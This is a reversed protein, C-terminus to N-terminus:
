KENSQDLAGYWDDSHLIASTAESTTALRHEMAKGLAEREKITSVKSEAEWADAINQNETLFRRIKKAIRSGSDSMMIQKCVFMFDSVKGSNSIIYNSCKDDESVLLSMKEKPLLPLFFEMLTPSKSIYKMAAVYNNENKLFLRAEQTDKSKMLSEIKETIPGTHLSGLLKSINSEIPLVDRVDGQERYIDLAYQLRRPSIADKEKTPLEHWWEIAADAIRQGYEQRFWVVNPEYPMEVKVHFRDEQAPDIKEVDYTKEDDPNIASWVVRLNPFKLGNISKFQILEMVANRVKKPSRNFEDFFLAEIEGTAFTQPRVLDLYTHGDNRNVAHSVVDSAREKSLKWNQEVWEIALNLNISVLERIIDFQEPAKNETKERPVGIFDVWPDMTSASFYKWKLNHREFAEKIIATKGVGHRGQFLVNKNHQIWFDLKHALNISM